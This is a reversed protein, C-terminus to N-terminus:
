RSGERVGDRSRGANLWPVTSFSIIWRNPL